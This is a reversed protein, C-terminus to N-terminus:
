RERLRKFNKNLVGKIWAAALSASFVTITRIYPYIGELDLRTVAPALIYSILLHLIYIDASYDKGIVRLVNLAGGIKKFRLFLLFVCVSILPTCMYCEGCEVTDFGLTMLLQKELIEMIVFLATLCPLAGGRTSTKEANGGERAKKGIAMGACFFPIGIFLFNRTYTPPFEHGFILVSYKGLALNLAFLFPACMFIFKEIKMKKAFFFILLVYLVANLYWLHIAAPSSNVLLTKVLTKLSLTEKFYALISQNEHITCFVRWPIYVVHAWVCLKLHKCIQRLKKEDPAGSDYFFGTIM